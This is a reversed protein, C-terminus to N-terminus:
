RGSLQDREVSVYEVKRRSFCAYCVRGAPLWPVACASELPGGVCNSDRIVILRNRGTFLGIIGYKYKDVLVTSKSRTVTKRPDKSNETTRKRNQIRKSTTQGNPLPKMVTINAKGGTSQVRALSCCRSPICCSISLSLSLFVFCLLCPAYYKTMKRIKTEEWTNAERENGRERRHM